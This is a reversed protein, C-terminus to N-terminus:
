RVDNPQGIIRYIEVAFPGELHAEDTPGVGVLGPPIEEGAGRVVPERHSALDDNKADGGHSDMGLSTMILELHDFGLRDTKYLNERSYTVNVLFKDIRYIWQVPSFVIEEIKADLSIESHLSILARSWNLISSHDAIQEEVDGFIPDSIPLWTKDGKSFGRNVQSNWPMPTRVRDRLFAKENGIRKRAQISMNDLLDADDLDSDALGIEDGFYLVSVGPVMFILALAVKIKDKDKNCWRSGFRSIDHNSGTWTARAGMPLGGIAGMISRRIATPEFLSTTFGFNFTLQLEDGDGFFRALTEPKNVWTEGLLVKPPDYENCIERWRRYLGHVEPRNKSFIPAVGFPADMVDAIAIPDDRLYRDKYIGHAVDIRFGDVGADFWYTLIKEFEEHVAPNWWNLDPQDALFNHLYYENSDDDLTWASSGTGDLWNNPPGGDSKPPAWVYYDRYKSAKSSRSDIFWPHKSSSHNPIIDLFVKIGFSKAKAILAEFDSDNGLEPALAIYDSVDYGFDSNPSRTIPSLWIADIGLWALYGLKSSVGRLDGIGDGNSDVWSRIYIQYISAQSWWNPDGDLHSPSIQDTM